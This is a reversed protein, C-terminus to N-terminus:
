LTDTKIPQGQTHVQKDTCNCFQGTKTAMTKLCDICFAKNRDNSHGMLKEGQIDKSTMCSRDFM